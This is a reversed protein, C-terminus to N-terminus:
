KLTKRAVTTAIHEFESDKEGTNLRCNVGDLITKMPLMKRLGRSLNAKTLKQKRCRSEDHEHNGKSSQVHPSHM